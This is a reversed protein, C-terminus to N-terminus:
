RELGLAALVVRQKAQSFACARKTRSDRYAFQSAEWSRPQGGPWEILLRLDRVDQPSVVQCQGSLARNLAALQAPSRVTLHRDYAGRLAAADLAVISTSDFSRYYVEAREIPPAACTPFVVLASSLLMLYRFRKM